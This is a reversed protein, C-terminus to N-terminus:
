NSKKNKKDQKIVKIDEKKKNFMLCYIANLGITVSLLTIIVGVVPIITLIKILLIGIIGSFYRNSKLKLLKVLLLNGFIIGAYIFSLYLGILYLASFILGLNFGINSVLLMFCVIPLCILLLLGNGFGRIYDGTKKKLYNNTTNEVSKPLLIVLVLFVIVINIMSSALERTDISKNEIKKIKVIKNISDKDKISVIADESYKLTGKIVVGDEITINSSKLNINGSITVDKKITVNTGYINIDRKINGDLIINEGAIFIDKGVSCDKDFTINNGAIYLSNKVKGKINVNNGAIFGYEIKGYQNVTEGAIFGIGLINGRSNVTQGALAADGDVKDKFIVNNDAKAYFHNIDSANVNGIGIILFLSIVITLLFKKM